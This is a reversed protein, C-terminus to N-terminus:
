PIVVVAFLTKVLMVVESFWNMTSAKQVYRCRAMLAMAHQDWVAAAAAQGRFLRRCRRQLCQELVQLFWKLVCVLCVSNSM